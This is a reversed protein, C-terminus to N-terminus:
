VGGGGVENQRLEFDLIPDRIDRPQVSTQPERQVSRERRGSLAKGGPGKRYIIEPAQTRHLRLSLVRGGVAAARSKASGVPVAM